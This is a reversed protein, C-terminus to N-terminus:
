QILKVKKSIAFKFGNRKDYIKLGNCEVQNNYIEM